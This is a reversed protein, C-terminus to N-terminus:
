LRDICFVWGRLVKAGIIEVRMRGFKGIYSLYEGLFGESVVFVYYDKELGYLIKISCFRNVKIRFKELRINMIIKGIM